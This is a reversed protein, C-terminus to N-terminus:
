SILILATSSLLRFEILKKMHKIEIKIHTLKQMSKKM